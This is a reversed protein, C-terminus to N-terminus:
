YFVLAQQFGLYMLTLFLTENWPVRFSDAENLSLYLKFSSVTIQTIARSHHFGVRWGRPIM